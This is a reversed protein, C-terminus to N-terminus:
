SSDGDTAARTNCAGGGPFLEEVSLCWFGRIVVLGVSVVFVVPKYGDRAVGFLFVVWARSLWAGVV